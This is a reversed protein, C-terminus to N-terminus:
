RASTPQVRRTQPRQSCLESRRGRRFSHPGCIHITEQPSILSPCGMHLATGEFSTMIPGKARNQSEFCLQPGNSALPPFSLVCVTHPTTQPLGDGLSMGCAGTPGTGGSGGLPLAPAPPPVICHEGSGRLCCLGPGVESGGEFRM